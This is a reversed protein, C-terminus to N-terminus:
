FDITGTDIDRDPGFDKFPECGEIYPSSLPSLESNITDFKQADEDKYGFVCVKKGIFSNLQNRVLSTSPALRLSLNCYRKTVFFTQERLVLDGCAVMMAQAYPSLGMLALLIWKGM